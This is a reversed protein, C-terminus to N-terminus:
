KYKKKSSINNQLPSFSLNNNKLIQQNNKLKNEIKQKQPIEKSTDPNTVNINNLKNNNSINKKEDELNDIFFNGGKKDKTINILCNCIPSNGM